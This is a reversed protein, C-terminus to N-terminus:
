AVNHKSLTEYKSALSQPFSAKINFLCSNTVITLFMELLNSSEAANGPAKLQDVARQFRNDGKRWQCRVIWSPRWTLFEIESILYMMM